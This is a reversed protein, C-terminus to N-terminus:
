RVTAILKTLRIGSFEELMLFATQFRSLQTEYLMVSQHYDNQIKAYQELSVQGDTFLKKSMSLSVSNTQQMKGATLLLAHALKLEQYMKIVQQRVSLALADKEQEAMDIQLEAARTTNKRSLFNGLPLQVTVGMNFRSTRVNSSQVYPYVVSPDKELAINGTNGYGYMTNLLISNFITKKSTQLNQEYLNINKGMRKLDASNQVASDILFPLLRDTKLLRALTSDSPIDQSIGTLHLLLLIFLYFPKEPMNFSNYIVCIQSVPASVVGNGTYLRIPTVSYLASGFASCM